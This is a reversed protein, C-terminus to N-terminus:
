YKKEQGKYHEDHASSEGYNKWKIALVDTVILEYMNNKMHKVM